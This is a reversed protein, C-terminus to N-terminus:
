QGGGSERGVRESEDAEQWRFGSGTAAEEFAELLGILGDYEVFGAM